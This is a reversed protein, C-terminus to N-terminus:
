ARLESSFDQRKSFRYAGLIAGWLAKGTEPDIGKDHSLFEKASAEFGLSVQRMEGNYEFFCATNTPPAAVFASPQPQNVLLICGPLLNVQDLTLSQLQNPNQGAGSVAGPDVFSYYQVRLIAQSDKPAPMIRLLRQRYPKDLYLVNAQEAFLTLSPEDDAFLNVPRHWLRLHVFWAPEAIAQQSNDFEGALYTALTLLSAPLMPHHPPTPIPHKKM